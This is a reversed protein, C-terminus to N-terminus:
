RSVQGPERLRGDVLEVTRDVAGNLRRPDHSVALAAGGDACVTRIIQTVLEVSSCDLGSHAEDLLVLRPETILVRALEARQVMGHSCRDARREGAAGLGVTELAADVTADDRGRLRAVLRLHERLTLQPHVSPDHGVLAIDPRVRRREDSRVDAGLVWGAGSAPALLTAAVRLLTTKGSGNAGMLGVAEGPRLALSVDRLVSARGLTVSVGRLLLPVVRGSGDATPPTTGTDAAPLAVNVFLM